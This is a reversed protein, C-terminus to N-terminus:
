FQRQQVAAERRGNMEREKGACLWRKIHVIGKSLVGIKILIGKFWVFTHLMVNCAGPIHCRTIQYVHLLTGFAVAAEMMAFGLRSTMNTPLKKYVMLRFTPCPCFHKSEFALELVPVSQPLHCVVIQMRVLACCLCFTWKITDGAVAATVPARPNAPFKCNM